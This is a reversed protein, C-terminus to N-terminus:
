AYIRRPEALAPSALIFGLKCAKRRTWVDGKALKTEPLFLFGDGEYYNALCLPASTLTAGLSVKNLIKQGASSCIYFIDGDETLHYEKVSLIANVRKQSAIENTYGSFIDNGLEKAAAIAEELTSVTQTIAKFITTM